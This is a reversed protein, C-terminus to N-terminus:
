PPQRNQFPRVLLSESLTKKSNAMKMMMTESDSLYIATALVDYNLCAVSESSYYIFDDRAFLTPPTAGTDGRPWVEGNLDSVLVSVQRDHKLWKPAVRPIADNEQTPRPPVGTLNSVGGEQM